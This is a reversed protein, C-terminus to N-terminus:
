YDKWFNDYQGMDPCSIRTSCKVLFENSVLVEVFTEWM